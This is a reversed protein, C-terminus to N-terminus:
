QGSADWAWTTHQQAHQRIDHCISRECAQADFCNANQLWPFSLKCLLTLWKVKRAVPCLTVASVSSEQASPKMCMSSNSSLVTQLVKIMDAGPILPTLCQSLTLPQPKCCQVKWLTDVPDHLMPFWVCSLTDRRGWDHLCPVCDCISHVLTVGEIM